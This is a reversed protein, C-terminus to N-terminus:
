VAKLWQHDKEELIIESMLTKAERDALKELLYSLNSDENLLELFLQRMTADVTKPIATEEKEWRGVTQQDIGLLEGLVRRSQNFQLRLFKFEDGTLGQNKDVVQSGIANHLGNMDDISLYEEGDIIELTYGNKLHVNPLGCETYHYSKSMNVGIQFLYKALYDFSPDIIGAM